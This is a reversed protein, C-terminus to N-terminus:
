CESEGEAVIQKATAVVSQFEEESVEDDEAAAIIDELLKTLLRAKALWKQYKAGFFVSVVALVASAVAVILDSEM